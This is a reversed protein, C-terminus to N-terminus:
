VSIYGRERWSARGIEEVGDDSQDGADAVHQAAQGREHDDVRGPLASKRVDLDSSCVDSSWDCRYIGEKGGRREESRRSAMTPSTGPMPSMSLLRAENTIM